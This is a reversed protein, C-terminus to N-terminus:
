SCVNGSIGSVGCSKAFPTMTSHLFNGNASRAEMIRHAWSGEMTIARDEIWRKESLTRMITDIGSNGGSEAEVALAYASKGPEDGIGLIQPVSRARRIVDASTMKKGVADALYALHLIWAPHGGAASWVSAANSINSRVLSSVSMRRERKRVASV